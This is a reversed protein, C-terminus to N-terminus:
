SERKVLDVGFVHSLLTTILRNSDLSSTTVAASRPKGVVMYAAARAGDGEKQIKGLGLSV